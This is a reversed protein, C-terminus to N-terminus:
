EVQSPIIRGGEFRPPVYDGEPPDGSFYATTALVSVLIAFGAVILWFWPGEYWFPPDDPGRNRGRVIWAWVLYVALPLILPLIYTLLIRM